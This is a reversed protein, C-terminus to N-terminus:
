RSVFAEFGNFRIGCDRCCCFSICRFILLWRPAEQEPLGREKFQEVPVAEVPFQVFRNEPATKSLQIITPVFDGGSGFRLLTTVSERHVRHM